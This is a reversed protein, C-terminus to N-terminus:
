EGRLKSILVAKTDRDSCEIGQEKCMDRLEKNKLEELSKPIFEEKIVEEFLKVYTMRQVVNIKVEEMEFTGVPIYIEGLGFADVRIENGTLNKYLKKMIGGLSFCLSPAYGM